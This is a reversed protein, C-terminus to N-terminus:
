MKVILLQRGCCMKRWTLSLRGITESGLSLMARRHCDVFSTDHEVQRGPIHSLNTDVWCVSLKSPFADLIAWKNM